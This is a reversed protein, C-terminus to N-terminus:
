CYGVIRKDEVSSWFNGADWMYYAIDYGDGGRFEKPLCGYGGDFEDNGTNGFMHDTGYGSFILDNGGEGELTDSGGSGYLRDGSGRGELWCPSGDCIMTDASSTGICHGWAPCHYTAAQANGGLALAVVVMLAILGGLVGILAIANRM